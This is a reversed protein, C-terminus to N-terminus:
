FKVVKTTALIGNVQAKIIYSGTALNEVNILEHNTGNIVNSNVTKVTRGAIDTIQITVKGSTLSNIKVDLTNLDRLFSTVSLKSANIEPVLIGSCNPDNPGLINVAISTGVWLCAPDLFVEELRTAPVTLEQGNGYVVPTFYYVGYPRNAGDVISNDNIFGYIEQSEAPFAIPYSGIYPPNLTPNTSGSVDASSMIFAFGSVSAATIPPFIGTTTLVITDGSCVVSDSSTTVGASINPDSCPILPLTVFKFIGGGDTVDSFSGAWMTLSDAIGLEGRRGTEITTWNHGGDMTYSTGWYGTNTAGTSVMMPAVTGPVARLGTGFLNGTAVVPTWTAGGDGTEVVDNTRAADDYFRAIGNMSNYFCVDITGPVPNALGPSSVTWHLGRDASRYVRGHNTDFWVTDGVVDIHTTWGAETSDAPDPIDTGPVPVWTTGGDTTTYIEFENGMPDGIIVGNNADWFHIVNPFSEGHTIYIQNTGQQTWNAGGDMTKYIKGLGLPSIGSNFFVAWATDANIADLHCWEWNGGAPVLGTSWHAGGDVTRTYDQRPINNTTGDYAIAWVINTDVVDIDRIGSGDDVFNTSQTIWASQAYSGLYAIFLAIILLLKKM